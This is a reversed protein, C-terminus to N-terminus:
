GNLPRNQPVLIQFYLRGRNITETILHHGHIFIAGKFRLFDIGVFPVRAIVDEFIAAHRSLGGNTFTTRLIDKGYNNVSEILAAHGPSVSAFMSLHNNDLKVIIRSAMEMSLGFLHPEM